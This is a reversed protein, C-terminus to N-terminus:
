LSTEQLSTELNMAKFIEDKLQALEKKSSAEFRLSLLAQTKSSRVLVWATKRSIRIGDLSLYTEKQKKLHQKLKDLAVLQDKVPLPIRIENTKYPNNKPLIDIFNEEELIELFRLSAYLGDDFHQDKRDNFFMHGSFEVALDGCHDLLAERTFHHGSPSLIVQAGLQKLKEIIQDSCKVDLIIKKRNQKILQRSFIYALDDGYLLGEKSVVCLRDGDGDFALGFESSTKEIAQKLKLVSDNQTPDPSRHPFHGDPECFLFFPQFGFHSFVQKALHSQAGSGADVVFKLAKTKKFSFEKDLSSIYPTIHDISIKKGRKKNKIRPKSELIKHKIELILNKAERKRLMIKFGNFEKPNHSATVVITATFKYHHLLFYCLPSPSLGISSVNFGQELLHAQLDKCLEPSSLRSDHGILLSPKDTTLISKLAIALDKVFSKDFDKKYIGRIDNARFIYSNFKM